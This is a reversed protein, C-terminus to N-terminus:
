GGIINSKRQNCLRCLIQINEATNSGRRSVPIIHDYQLEEKLGCKVCQEGDRAMVLIQIDDPIPERRTGYKKAYIAGEFNKIKRSLISIENSEQLHYLIIRNLIEDLEDIAHHRPTYYIKEKYFWLHVGTSEMIVVPISESKEYDEVSLLPPLKLSIVRKDPGEGFTLELELNMGLNEEYKPEFSTLMAYFDYARLIGTRKSSSDFIVKKNIIRAVLKVSIPM